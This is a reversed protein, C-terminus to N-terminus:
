NRIYYITVRTNAEQYVSVGNVIYRPFPFFRGASQMSSTAEYEAIVEVASTVVTTDWDYIAATGYLAGNLCSVEIGIIKDVDPRIKTIPIATSTATTKELVETYIVQAHTNGGTQAFCIWPTILFCVVLVLGLLKKM